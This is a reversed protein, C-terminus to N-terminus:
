TLRKIQQETLNLSKLIDTIEQKFKKYTEIEGRITKCAYVCTSHDKKFSYGVQAHSKGTLNKIIYMAIMRPKCIIGPKGKIFLSEPNLGYHKSVAKVIKEEQTEQGTKIEPNELKELRVQLMILNTKLEKIERELTM